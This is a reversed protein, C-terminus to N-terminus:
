IRMRSWKLGNDAVLTTTPALLFRFENGFTNDWRNEFTGIVDDDYHLAGLTYSTATAFRPSWLYNATFSIRPPSIIEPM